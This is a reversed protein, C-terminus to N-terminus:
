ALRYALIQTVLTSDTYCAALVSLKCVTNGFHCNMLFLYQLSPSSLILIVMHLCLEWQPTAKSASNNEMKTFVSFVCRSTGTKKSHSREMVVQKPMYSGEALFQLFFISFFEIVTCMNTQFIKLYIEIMKWNIGTM